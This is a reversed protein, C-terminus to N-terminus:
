KKTFCWYTLSLVRVVAFFNVTARTSYSAKWIVLDKSFTLHFFKYELCPNCIKETLPWIPFSKLSQPKWATDTASEKTKTKKLCGKLSTFTMRLQGGTDVGLLFRDCVAVSTSVSRIM